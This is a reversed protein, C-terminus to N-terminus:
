IREKCPMARSGPKTCCCASCRMWTRHEYGGGGPPGRLWVAHHHQTERRKKEGNHCDGVVRVWWLSRAQLWVMLPRSSHRLLHLKADGRLSRVAKVCGSFFTPFLHNTTSEFNTQPLNLTRLIGYQRRLGAWCVHEALFVGSKQDPTLALAGDTACNRSDGSTWLYVGAFATNGSKLTCARNDESACTRENTCTFCDTDEESARRCASASVLGLGHSSMDHKFWCGGFRKVPNSSPTPRDDASAVACRWESLRLSRNAYMAMATDTSRLRAQRAAATATPTSPLRWFSLRFERRAPM